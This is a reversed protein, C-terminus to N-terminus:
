PINVGLVYDSRIILRTTSPDVLYRVGTRGPRSEKIMLVAQTSKLKSIKNQDSASVSVPKANILPFITVEIQSAKQIGLSKFLTILKKENLSPLTIAPHHSALDETLLDAGCPLMWPEQLPAAGGTSCPQKNFGEVEIRTNLNKKDDTTWSDRTNILRVNDHTSVWKEQLLISAVPASSLFDDASLTTTLSWLKADPFVKRALGQHFATRRRLQTIWSEKEKLVFQISKRTDSLSIIDALSNGGSWEDGGFHVKAKIRHGPLLTNARYGGLPVFFHDQSDRAYRKCIGNSDAVVSGKDVISTRVSLTTWYTPVQELKGERGQSGPTLGVEKVTAELTCTPSPAAPVAWVTKGVLFIESIIFSIVFLQNM